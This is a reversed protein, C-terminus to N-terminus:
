KIKNQAVIDYTYIGDSNYKIILVMLTQKVM